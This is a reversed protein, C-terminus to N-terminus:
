VCLGWTSKPIDDVASVRPSVGMRCEPNCTPIARAAPTAAITLDAVRNSASLGVGDGNGFILICSDKNKGTLAFGPPLAISYPCSISTQLELTCPGAGALAAMLDVLSAVPIVPLKM